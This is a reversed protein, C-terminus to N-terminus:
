FGSTARGAPTLAAVAAVRAIVHASCLLLLMLSCDFAFWGADTDSGNKLSMWVKRVRV